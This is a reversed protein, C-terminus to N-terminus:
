IIHAPKPKKYYVFPRKDKRGISLSKIVTSRGSENPKNESAHAANKKVVISLSLFFSLFRFFFGVGNPPFGLFCSVHGGRRGARSCSSRKTRTTRRFKRARLREHRTNAPALPASQRRRLADTRPYRDDPALPRRPPTRPPPMVRPPRPKTPPASSVSPLTYLARSHSVSLALPNISKQEVRQRLPYSARTM